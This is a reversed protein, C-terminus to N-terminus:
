YNPGIEGVELNCNTGCTAPFVSLSVRGRRLYGDAALLMSGSRYCLQLIDDHHTKTSRPHYQLM